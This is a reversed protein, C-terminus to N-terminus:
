PGWTERLFRLAEAIRDAPTRPAPELVRLIDGAAWPKLREFDVLGGPPMAHDNAPPRVDHLHMGVMWPSLRELWRDLNIFGMLERIRGHGADHWYRVGREAGERCLVEMEVETPIAEWTPLNELALVVGTEELVPALRDLGARLYDLHRPVKKERAIQLKLKLKEYTASFVQGAACLALLDPSYRTMKVNGAHTVVARAGMDAAFRVTRATHAVALERERPDDSALTYLEPHGRPAGVPVPCYNHVSVVRVAGSAVLKRVGPVLDLRLDYGLEVREVGLSLIEELMREGDTHAGANWRTSLAFHM